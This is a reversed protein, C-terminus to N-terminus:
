VHHAASLRRGPPYGTAGQRVDSQSAAPQEAVRQTLPQEANPLADESPSEDVLPAGLVHPLLPFSAETASAFNDFEALSTQANFAKVAYARFRDGRMGHAPRPTLLHVEFGEAVPKSRAQMTTSIWHEWGPGPRPPALVSASRQPAAQSAM